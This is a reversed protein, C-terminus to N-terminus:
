KLLCPMPLHRVTFVTLSYPALLGVDNKSINNTLGSLLRALSTNEERIISSYAADFDPYYMGAQLTFHFFAKEANISKCSEKIHSIIRECPSKYKHMFSDFDTLYGPENGNKKMEAFYIENVVTELIHQKDRFHYFVAGRTRGTVREIDRITV